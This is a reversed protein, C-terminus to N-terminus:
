GAQLSMGFGYRGSNCGELGRVSLDHCNSENPCVSISRGVRLSGSNMPVCNRKPSMVKRIDLLKTCADPEQVPNGSFVPGGCPGGDRVQSGHMGSEMANEHVFDKQWGSPIATLSEQVALFKGDTSPM